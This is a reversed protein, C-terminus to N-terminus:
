KFFLHHNDYQINQIKHYILNNHKLNHHQRMFVISQLAHIIHSLYQEYTQYIALKSPKKSDNQTM